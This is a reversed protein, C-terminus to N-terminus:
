SSELLERVLPEVHSEYTFGATEGADVFKRVLEGRSNFVLVAPISPIEAEAFVDDSPTRSIYNEFDADVSALFDTVKPEYSEPPRTKRGDFDLDVGICRVSDGWRRNLRVLEPFEKLCPACALSWLDVVTIKGSSEAAQRIAQWQAYQVSPQAGEVAAGDGPASEESGAPENGVNPMQLGQSPEDDPQPQDPIEGEPLVFGGPPDGAAEPAEGGATQDSEASPDAPAPDDGDTEADPAAPAPVAAPEEEAGGGCGAVGVLGLVAFLGLSLSLQYPLSGLVATRTMSNM